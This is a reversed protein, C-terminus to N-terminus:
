QSRYASRASNVLVRANFYGRWDGVIDFATGGMESVAMYIAWVNDQDVPDAEEVPDTRLGMTVGTEQLKQLFLGPTQRILQLLARMDLPDTFRDYFRFSVPGQIALMTQDQEVNGSFIGAVSSYGHSFTVSHFKYRNEFTYSKEGSRAAHAIQGALRRLVGGGEVAYSYHQIVDNLHGIEDLTVSRGRGFYYHLVFDLDNWRRRGRGVPDLDFVAFETRGEEYRIVECRCNFDEGPHGTPPPNDWAFVKGDNEAHSPRVRGDRRTRWIYHTTTRAQKLDLAAPADPSILGHRLYRDYATKTLLSTSHMAIENASPHLGIPGFGAFVPILRRTM